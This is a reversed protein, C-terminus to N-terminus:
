RAAVGQRAAPVGGPVAGETGGPLASPRGATDFEATWTEFRFSSAADQAGLGAKLLCAERQYRPTRAEGPLLVGGRSGSTIFLGERMPDAAEGPALRQLPGVVSVILRIEGWERLNIPRHRYDTDMAKAAAAAIESALDPASAHISGWCGRVKGGKVVTVFAGGPRRLAGSNTRVTPPRRGHLRAYASEAAIRGAEGTASPDSRLDVLLAALILLDTM